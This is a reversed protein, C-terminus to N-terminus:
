LHIVEGYAAAAAEMIAESMTPHPHVTKIINDKKLYVKLKSPLLSTIISLAPDLIWDIKMVQYILPFVKVNPNAGKELLNSVLENNGMIAAWALPTSGVIDIYNIDADNVNNNCIDIFIKKTKELYALKIPNKKYSSQM